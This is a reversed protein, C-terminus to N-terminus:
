DKNRKKKIIIYGSATALLALMIMSGLENDSTEISSKINSQADKDQTDKDQRDKDKADDIEPDKETKDDDIDGPVTIDTKQVKFTPLVNIDEGDKIIFTYTYTGDGNDKIKEAPILEGNITLDGLVFNKDPTIVIQVKGDTGSGTKNVEVKGNNVTSPIIVGFFATSINVDHDPMEFTYTGDEKDIESSAM